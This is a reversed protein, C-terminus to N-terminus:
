APLWQWLEPEVPASFKQESVDGINKNNSHYKHITQTFKSVITNLEVLFVINNNISLEIIASIKRCKVFIRNGGLNKRSM